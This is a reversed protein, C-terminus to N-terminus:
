LLFVVDGSASIIFDASIVSSMPSFLCLANTSGISYMCLRYHNTPCYIPVNNKEICLVLVFVTIQMTHHEQGSTYKEHNICM